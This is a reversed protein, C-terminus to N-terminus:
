LNGTQALQEAREKIGYLLGREMIFTGPHLVKWFLSDMMTRTRLILRSTGDAQPVIIFQYIDVWKGNEQHGMVIAQEPHLQAVIYPPPAPEHPCMHVQDGVQLNQWEDHIRDANIIPCNLLYTELWTYSYWGGKKADLQVIWPYIASPPANITIARNVFSAPEALLEDGPYTAAIEADTAGWRDMWPTLAVVILVVLVLLGAFIGILKLLKKM